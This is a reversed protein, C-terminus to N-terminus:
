LVLNIHGLVLNSGLKCLSELAREMTWLFCSRLFIFLLLLDMKCRGAIRVNDM